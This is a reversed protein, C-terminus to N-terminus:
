EDRQPLCSKMVDRIQMVEWYPGKVYFTRQLFGTSEILRCNECNDMIQCSLFIRRFENWFLRGVVFEATATASDLQRISERSTDM